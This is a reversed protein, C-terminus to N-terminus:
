FTLNNYLLLFGLLFPFKFTESMAALLYNGFHGWFCGETELDDMFIQYIDQCLGYLSIHVVVSEVGVEM